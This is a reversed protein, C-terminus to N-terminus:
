ENSVEYRYEFQQTIGNEIQQISLDAFQRILRRVTQLESLKERNILPALDPFHQIISQKTYLELDEYLALTQAVSFTIVKWLDETSTGSLEIETIDVYRLFELQAVFGTRLASKVTKRHATRTFFSLTKRMTRLLKLQKDRPLLGTVAAPFHQQHLDYTHYLANNLEDTTGKYVNHLLGHGITALNPNISKIINNQDAFQM